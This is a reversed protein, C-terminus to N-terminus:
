TYGQLDLYVRNDVNDSNCSLVLSVLLGSPNSSPSRKRDPSRRQVEADHRISDANTKASVGLEQDILEGNPSDVTLKFASLKKALDKIERAPSIEIDQRGREAAHNLPSCYRLFYNHYHLTFIM